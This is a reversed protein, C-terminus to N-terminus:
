QRPDDITTPLEADSQARPTGSEAGREQPSQTKEASDVPQEFEVEGM